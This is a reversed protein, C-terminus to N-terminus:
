CCTCPIMATMTMTTATATTMLTVKRALQLTAATTTAPSMLTMQMPLDTWLKLLMALDLRHQHQPPLPPEIM